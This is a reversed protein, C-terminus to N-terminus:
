SLWFCFWFCMDLFMCPHLVFLRHGHWELFRTKLLTLPFSNRPIAVFESSVDFTFGRRAARCQALPWSSQHGNHWNRNYNGTNVNRVLKQLGCVVPRLCVESLDLWIIQCDPSGHASLFAGAKRRECACAPLSCWMCRLTKQCQVHGGKCVCSVSCLWLWPASAALQCAINLSMLPAACFGGM